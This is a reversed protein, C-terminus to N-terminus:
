SISKKKKLKLASVWFIRTKSFSIAAPIWILTLGKCSDVDDCCAEKSLVHPFLEFLIEMVRLLFPIQSLSSVELTCIYSIWVQPLWLLHFQKGSIQGSGKTIIAAWPHAIYSNWVVINFITKIGSVLGLWPLVREKVSWNFWTLEFPIAPLTALEQWGNTENSQHSCIKLRFWNELLM